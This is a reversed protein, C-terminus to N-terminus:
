GHAEEWLLGREELFAEVSEAVLEHGTAHWHGPIKIEAGEAIRRLFTPRLDLCFAARQECYDRFFTEERLELDPFALEESHPLYVFVTVAEGAAAEDAIRDLIAATLEEMREANSGTRWGLGRRLVALLDLLRPGISARRAVAAPPPVPVGAVDLRGNELAMRPKAYDRFGLLNRYMDDRVFGVVVLDPHYRFGREVFTLLMQDQGYGHVGLNLVETAPLREQLRAAWTEEDRVEDGFTFSDGLLAIRQTGEPAEVGFERRGRMGASNSSVSGEGFTGDDRLGPALVWGLTPDYRDFGYYVDVHDRRDMWAARWIAGASRDTPVRFRPLSLAIRSGAELFASVALVYAVLLWPRRIM